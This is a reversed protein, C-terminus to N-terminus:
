KLHAAIACAFEMVGGIPAKMSLRISARLAARSNAQQIATPVLDQVAIRYRMGRAQQLLTDNQCHFSETAIVEGTIREIMICHPPQPRLFMALILRKSDHSRIQFRDLLEAQYRILVFYQQARVRTGDHEQALAMFNLYGFCDSGALSIKAQHQRIRRQMMQQKRIRANGQHHGASIQTFLGDSVFVVIRQASETLDSFVEQNMIPLNMHAAVIRHRPDDAFLFQQDAARPAIRRLGDGDCNAENLRDERAASMELVSKAQAFLAVGEHAMM